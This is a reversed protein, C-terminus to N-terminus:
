GNKGRLYRVGALEILFNKFRNHRSDISLRAVKRKDLDDDGNTRDKFGLTYNKDVTDLCIKDFGGGPYAFYKVEQNLQEEIIRKSEVIEDIKDVDALAKLSSHSKSHAGLTALPENSLEIVEDWSMFTRNENSIFETTLFITFPMGYRKLIPYAVGFNDKYGDDFTIVVFPKNPCIECNGYLFRYADDISIVKCYKSLFLAQHEFQDKPTIYGYENIFSPTSHYMLFVIGKKNKIKKVLYSDARSLYYIHKLKSLARTVLSM